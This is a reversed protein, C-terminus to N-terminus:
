PITKLSQQNKWWSYDGFNSDDTQVPSSEFAANSKVHRIFVEPLWVEHETIYHPLGEPWIYTGDTLCANGIEHVPLKCGFRCHSYGMWEHLRKGNKLYNVVQIRETSSISTDVFNQPTPLEPEEKSFWYGIAILTEKNM